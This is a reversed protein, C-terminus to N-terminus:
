PSAPSPALWMPALSIEVGDFPEARVTVDGEYQAVLLWGPDTLRFVEVSRNKPSVFWVHRVGERRYIPLKRYRDIAETSDSLVECVWDPALKFHAAVPVEPMRAVRWGALDPVLVDPDDPRGLRLEPEDLIHWGGPGGIGLGFPGGVLVGLSSAAKTHPGGPRPSVFLEGDLLEAVKENPVNELDECTARARGAKSTAPSDPSTIPEM